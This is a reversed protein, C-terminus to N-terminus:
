QLITGIFDPHNKMFEESMIPKGGEIQLEKILLFKGNGTQICIENQPCVLAKGIPYTTKNSSFFKKAKIIKIKIFQKDTKQWYTFYAPGPNHNEMKQKIKNASESWIIRNSNLFTKKNKSM